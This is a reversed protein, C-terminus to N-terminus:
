GKGRPLYTPLGSLQRELMLREYLDCAERRAQSSEFARRREGRLSRQLNLDFRQEDTLALRDFYRPVRRRVGGPRVVADNAYIEPQYREIFPRGIGPRNSCRFLSRGGPSVLAKQAHGAVYAICGDEVPGVTLWGRPWLSQLFASSYCVARGRAVPEWDSADQWGFVLVHFHPHGTVPGHEGCVAFRVRCPAIAKRLRRIFAQFDPYAAELSQPREEPRFKLTLFSGREHFKWECLLRTVWDGARAKRCQVCKGCPLEIRRWRFDPPADFRLKQRSLPLYYAERYFPCM